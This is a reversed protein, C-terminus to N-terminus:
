LHEILYWCVHTKYSYANFIWSFRDKMAKEANKRRWGGGDGDGPWGAAIMIEKLAREEEVEFEPDRTECVSEGAHELIM